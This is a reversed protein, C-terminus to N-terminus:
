GGDERWTGPGKGPLIMVAHFDQKRDVGLSDVAAILDPEVPDVARESVAFWSFGPGRRTRLRGRM